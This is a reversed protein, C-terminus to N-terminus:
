LSPSPLTCSKGKHNLTARPAAARHPSHPKPSTHFQLALTNPPRPPTIRCCSLFNPSKIRRSSSPHFYAHNVKTIQTTSTRARRLEQSGQAPKGRTAHRATCPTHHLDNVLSPRPLCHTSVTRPQLTCIKGKHKPHTAHTARRPSLSPERFSSAAPLHSSTLTHMHPQILPAM